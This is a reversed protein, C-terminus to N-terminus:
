KIKLIPNKNPKASSLLDKAIENFVMENKEQFSYNTKNGNKLWYVKDSSKLYDTLGEKQGRKSDDQILIIENSTKRIEKWTNLPFSTFYSYPLWWFRKKAQDDGYSFSPNELILARAPHNVALQSAISGGFGQGVIVLKNENFQSHAFRYWHQADSFLDNENTLEGVSLASGRYGTILVDFGNKYYTNESMKLERIDIDADPFLLVLAKKTKHQFWLGHLNLNKNIPLNLEQFDEDFNYPTESTYSPSQIIFRGENKFFQQVLLVYIAGVAFLIYYFKRSKFM